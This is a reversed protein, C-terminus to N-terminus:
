TTKLHKIIGTEKGGKKRKGTKRRGDETKRRRGETKKVDGM